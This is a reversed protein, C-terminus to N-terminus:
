SEKATDRTMVAIEFGATERINSKLSKEPSM